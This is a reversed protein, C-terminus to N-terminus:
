ITNVSHKGLNFLYQTTISVIFGADSLNTFQIQLPGKYFIEISLIRKLTISDYKSYLIVVCANINKSIKSDRAINCSVTLFFTHLKKLFIRVIKYRFKKRKKAM